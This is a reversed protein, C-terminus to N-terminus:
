YLFDYIGQYHKELEGNDDCLLIIYDTIEKLEYITVFENIDIEGSMGEKIQMLISTNGRLLDYSHWECFTLTNSAAWVAGEIKKGGVNKSVYKSLYKGVKQVDECKELHVTRPNSWNTEKGYNYWERQKTEDAVQLLKDDIKFGNRFFYNRNRRYSDIYGMLKLFFNWKQRIHAAPLFTDIIVHFHINGNEQKEAKWLYNVVYYQYKLWLMFPHFISRKIEKDGHKQEAPLTLTMFYLNTQSIENKKRNGITIAIAWVCIIKRIQKAIKSNVDGKYNIQQEEKERVISINDVFKRKDSIFYSIASNERIQLKFQGM